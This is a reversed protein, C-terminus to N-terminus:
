EGDGLRIPIKCKVKNLKDPRDLIKNPIEIFKKM